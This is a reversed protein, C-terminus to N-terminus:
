KTIIMKKVFHYGETTFSYLYFGSALHGADFQLVHFGPPKQEDLLVAVRQGLINYLEIRIDAAKPVSYRINTVANFPNPYNQFLEFKNPILTMLDEVDTVYRHIYWFGFNMRYSTNDSIDILRQGVTGKIQHSTNSIHVAGNGLVIKQITDQAPLAQCLLFLGAILSFGPLSNTNCSIVERM